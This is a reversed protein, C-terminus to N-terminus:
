VRLEDALSALANMEEQIEEPVSREMGEAGEANVAGSAAQEPDVSGQVEMLQQVMIELQSRQEREEVLTQRIRDLEIETAELSAGLDERECEKRVLDQRLDDSSPSAEVVDAPAILSNMMDNILRAEFNDTEEAVADQTQGEALPTLRNMGAPEAADTEGDSNEGPGTGMDDVVEGNESKDKASFRKRLALSIAKLSLEMFIFPKTIVEDAGSSIVKKRDRFESIGSVFLVPINGSGKQDRLRQCVDFGATEEACMNVVVLDTKHSATYRLLEAPHSFLEFSFGVSRLASCVISRSVMEDDVIAASFQLSQTGEVLAANPSITRLVEIAVTVTHLSSETAHEPIEQFVKLLSQLASSLRAMDYRGAHMALNTVRHVKGRLEGYGEALSAHSADDLQALHRQVRNVSEQLQNAVSSGDAPKELVAGEADGGDFLSSGVKAVVADISAEKEDFVKTAGAKVVKRIQRASYASAYGYIPLGAFERDKRIRKIVKASDTERLMLDLFVADIQNRRLKELALDGNSAVEVDIGMVRFRSLIAIRLTPEGVILLIRSTRSATPLEIEDLASADIESSQTTVM